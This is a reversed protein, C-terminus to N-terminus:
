RLDDNDDDSLDPGVRRGEREAGGRGQSSMIVDVVYSTDIKLVLEYM